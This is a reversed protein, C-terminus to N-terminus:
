IMLMYYFFFLVLIMVSFLFFHLIYSNYVLGIHAITYSFKAFWAHPAHKLGYLARCLWCVKHQPHTYGLPPQMYVEEHDGNFFANKMDM